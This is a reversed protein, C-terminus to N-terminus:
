GRGRSSGRGSGSGSESGGGGGAGVGGGDRADRDGDVTARRARRAGADGAGGAGGGAGGADGAGGAGRAATEAAEAAAQEVRGARMHKIRHDMRKDAVAARWNEDFAVNAHIVAPTEPHEMWRGFIQADFPKMMVVAASVTDPDGLVKGFNIHNRGADVLVVVAAGARLAHEAKEELSCGGPWIFVARGAYDAGPHVLPECALRQLGAGGTMAVEAGLVRAARRGFAAPLCPFHKVIPETEECSFRFRFPHPRTLVPPSALSSPFAVVLAFPPSSFHTSLPCGPSLASRKTDLLM